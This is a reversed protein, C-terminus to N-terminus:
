ITSTKHTCVPSSYKIAHGTTMYRLHQQYLFYYIGEIVILHLGDMYLITLLLRDLHHSSSSSTSIGSFVISQILVLFTTVAYIIASYKIRVDEEYEALYNQVAIINNSMLLFLINIAIKAFLELMVVINIYATQSTTEDAHNSIFICLLSIELCLFGLFYLGFPKYIFIHVIHYIVDYKSPEEYVRLENLEYTAFQSRPERHQQGGEEM